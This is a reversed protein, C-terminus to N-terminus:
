DVYRGYCGINLLLVNPHDVSSAIVLDEYYEYEDYNGLVKIRGYFADTPCLKHNKMAADMEFLSDFKHVAGTKYFDWDCEILHRLNDDDFFNYIQLELM